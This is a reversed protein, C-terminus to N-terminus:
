RLAFNFDGSDLRRITLRSDRATFRPDHTYSDLLSLTLTRFHAHETPASQTNIELSNHTMFQVYNRAYERCKRIRKASELPTIKRFSPSVDWIIEKNLKRPSFLLALPAQMPRQVLASEFQKPIAM